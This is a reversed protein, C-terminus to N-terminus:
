TTGKPDLLEDIQGVAATMGADTGTDFIRRMAEASEWSATVIMQTDGGALESLAVSIAGTPMDPGGDDFELARPPDVGRVRWWGHHQEGDPGTMFYAVTGGPVLDHETVTAPYGPPGWWRELQRPDSWLRWVREVSADFRATITLTRADADKVVSTVPM